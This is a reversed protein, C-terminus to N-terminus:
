VVSYQVSSYQALRPFYPLRQQGNARIKVRLLYGVCGGCQPPICSSPSAAPRERQEGGNFKAVGERVKGQNGQM